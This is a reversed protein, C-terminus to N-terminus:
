LKYFCSGGLTSEEVMYKGKETTEKVADLVVASKSPAVEKAEAKVEEPKVEEPKVEESKVEPAVQAVPAEEKVALVKIDKAMEILAKITEITMKSVDLEKLSKAKCLESYSKIADQRKEELLEAIRAEAVQLKKAEETAEVKVEEAKPEVEQKVEPQPTEENTNEM